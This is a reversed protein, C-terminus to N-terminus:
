TSTDCASSYLVRWTKSFLNLFCTQKGPVTLCHTIRAAWTSVCVVKVSSMEWTSAINIGQEHIHTTTNQQKELFRQLTHMPHKKVSEKTTCSLYDSSVLTGLCNRSCCSWVGNQKSWRTRRTPEITTAKITLVMCVSGSSSKQNHSTTSKNPHKYSIINPGHWYCSEQIKFVIEIWFSRATLIFM